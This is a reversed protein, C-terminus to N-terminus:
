DAGDRAVRYRLWVHGDDRPQASILEMRTPFEDPALDPSDFLSPTRTGGILAPFVDLSLEDILNARLLAGNLRGGATSLLTTVNLLTHLKELARGLDVRETGALLYPITERRLYALYAPPTQRCALVLVHWSAWEEDPLEKYLWRIRGQSDVVTFWKRGPQRVVTDPLFDDYLPATDDEVPPLPDPMQSDLVFSGSGELIAQPLFEKKAHEYGDNSSGAVATWREDGLLLLTDPSLTLRGDVSSSQHVIVHPRNM